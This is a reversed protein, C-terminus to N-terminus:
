TYKVTLFHQFGCHSSSTSNRMSGATARSHHPPWSTPPNHLERSLGPTGPPDQNRTFPRRVPDPSPLAWIGLFAVCQVRVQSRQLARLAASSLSSVPRLSPTQFRVPSFHSLLPLPFSSVRRQWAACSNATFHDRHGRGVAVCPWRPLNEICYRTIFMNQHLLYNEFSTVPLLLRKPRIVLRTRSYILTGPRTYLSELCNLTIGLCLTIVNRCM